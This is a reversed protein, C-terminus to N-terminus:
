VTNEKLVNKKYVQELRAFAEVGVGKAQERWKQTLLFALLLLREMHGTIGLCGTASIYTRLALWVCYEKLSYQGKPGQCNM